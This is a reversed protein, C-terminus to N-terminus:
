HSEFLLSHRLGITIKCHSAKHYYREINGFYIANNNVMFSWWIDGDGNGVMDEGCNCRCPGELIFPMTTEWLHGGFIEMEMELWIKGVTVDVLNGSTVM